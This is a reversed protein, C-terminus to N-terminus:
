HSAAHAYHDGFFDPKNWTPRQPDQAVAYGCLFALRILQAGAEFDLGPQNIDDQPEHYRTEEWKEFAEMPKINPDGSQMGPSLMVAPIGEKVFSYQDSRIFVVQEPFPDASVTLNLRAAAKAVVAQLSSHEAGFAIVDSMPWLMLIEDININAVLSSKPVTPYTAFYESGLLGAEEGTVAVFLISRKPKPNMSSFARALQLLSASGSANDLAGNYITDGNVAAGIGLHDLHASYVVSEAKLSPDSGELRAVVNPSQVDQLKSAVKISATFPLTFTVPKGAKAAAFVDASPHGSADLLSKSEPLSLIIKARLQAFYHAPNGQKDLWTFNPQDADRAIKAFPYMDESTPDDLVIVGVAGHAVANEAKVLSSSYHAKLSSEFNPAGYLMAVIKGRVDIGKYDDYNQEPAIVGFGVYVIPADVATQPRMSDTDAVFQTGLALRQTKGDRSFSLSTHAADLTQSRLPVNQYFSNSDGAPQLGLGEFQTAMFRAAVLYGRTATGRGELLDDALFRMDARLAAAHITSMATNAPDDSTSTTANCSALFLLTLPFIIKAFRM